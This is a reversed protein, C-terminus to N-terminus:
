GEINVKRIRSEGNVLVLAHAFIEVFSQAGSDFTACWFITANGDRHAWAFDDDGVVPCNEGFGGAVKQARLM